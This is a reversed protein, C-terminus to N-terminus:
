SHDLVSGLVSDTEVEPAPEKEEFKEEDIETIAGLASDEFGMFSILRKVISKKAM